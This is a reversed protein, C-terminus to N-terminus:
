SGSVQQRDVEVQSLKRTQWIVLCTLLVMLVNLFIYFLFGRQIGFRDSIAAMFFPFAFAGIGGGTSAFGVAVGQGHKFYKGVLAIVLPYIASYGLGSLFFGVGALWPGRMLIAFSLAVTCTSALILLLEAQRYGRYGLSVGLRGMLLGMWYVSVM